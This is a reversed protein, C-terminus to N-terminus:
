LTVAWGGPGLGGRAGPGCHGCVGGAPGGAGACGECAGPVGREGRRAAGGTAGGGDVDDGDGGRQVGGRTAGLGWGAGSLGDEVAMADDANETQEAVDGATVEGDDGGDDAARVVAPQM